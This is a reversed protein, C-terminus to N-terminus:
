ARIPAAQDQPMTSPQQDGPPGAPTQTLVLVGPDALPRLLAFTLTALHEGTASAVEVSTPPFDAAAPCRWQPTLHPRMTTLLDTIEIIRPDNPLHAATTRFQQYLRQLLPEPDAVRHAAPPDAALHLILNGHAHTSPDGWLLRYASNGALIDLREDLLLAPTDPWAEILRVTM